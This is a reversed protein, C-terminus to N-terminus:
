LCDLIAHGNQHGGGGGRLRLRCLIGNAHVRADHQNIKEALKIAPKHTLGGFMVHSFQDVQKKLAANMQPHNYGHVMCWWSSMGDIVRRGDNLHLYVGDAGVVGFTELPNTTTSYPHWIHKADFMMDQPTIM